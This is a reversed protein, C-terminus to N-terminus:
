CCSRVGERHHRRYGRHARRRLISDCIRSTGKSAVTFDLTAPEVSPATGFLRAFSKSKLLDGIIPSASVVVGEVLLRIAIQIM